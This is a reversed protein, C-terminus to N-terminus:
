DKYKAYQKISDFWNFYVIPHNEPVMEEIEEEKAQLIEEPSAEAEKIHERFVGALNMQKTGHLQRTVEMLFNSDGNNLLDSVKVTYKATECVAGIWDEQIVGERKKAKVVRVDVIPTYDVGLSERWFESWQEQTVYNSGAFYSPKVALLCHFHPHVSGGQSKTIEMSRAYGLILKKLSRRKVLKAFAHSMELLTSKLETVQCNKLTLTLFIFRVKPNNKVIEPIGTALRKRWVRSRAAQCIPCHRLHCLYVQNLKFNVEGEPDTQFKYGLNRACDTTRQAYKLYDNALYYGSIAQNAAKHRNWSDDKSSYQTLFDLNGLSPNINM